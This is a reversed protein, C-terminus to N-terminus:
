AIRTSANAAVKTDSSVPVWYVQAGPGLQNTRGSGASPRGTQIIQFPTTLIATTQTTLQRAERFDHPSGQNAWCISFIESNVPGRENTPDHLTDDYAVIAVKLGAARADMVINKLTLNARNNLVQSVAGESVRLKKALEGQNLPITELRKQLQTVFDFTIRHTFAEVGETTWHPTEQAM